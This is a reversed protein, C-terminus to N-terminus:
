SPDQRGKNLRGADGWKVAVDHLAHGDRTLGEVLYLRILESLSVGRKDAEAQLAGTLAETTTFKLRAM